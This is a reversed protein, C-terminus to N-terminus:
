TPAASSSLRAVIAEVAAADNGGDAIVDPALPPEYVEGAGPLTPAEGRRAKAYLGKIDREACTTPDVRLWVEIFTPVLMRAHDRYTRRPATAAVFVLHGQRALLAALGAVARYFAAREEESYGFMGLAVRLEDSDLLISPASLAARVRTALTTKGSAPLGTFWVVAGTTV